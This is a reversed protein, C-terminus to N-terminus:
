QVRPLAALHDDHIRQFDPLDRAIVRVLYDPDGFLRHAEVINPM